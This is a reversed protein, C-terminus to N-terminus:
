PHKLKLLSINKLVNRARLKINESSNKNVETIKGNNWFWFRSIKVPIKDLAEVVSKLKDAKNTTM